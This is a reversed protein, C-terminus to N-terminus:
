IRLVRRVKVVFVLGSFIRIGGKIQGIEKFEQRSYSSKYIKLYFKFNSLSTGFYARDRKYFTLIKSVKLTVVV